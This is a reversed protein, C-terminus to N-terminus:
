SKRKWEIRLLKQGDSFSFTLDGHFTRQVAKAIKKALTETTTQIVITDGEDKNEIIRALPNRRMEAEAENKIMRKMDELEHPKVGEKVIYVIGLPYHDRIKRCAPCEKFNVKDKNEMLENYFKEDWFWRKNHYILKCSPCVTPDKYISRDMYPDHLKVDYLENLRKM